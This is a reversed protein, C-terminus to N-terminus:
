RPVNDLETEKDEVGDEGKMKSESNVKSRVSQLTLTGAETITHKRGGKKKQQVKKNQRDQCSSDFLCITFSLSFM